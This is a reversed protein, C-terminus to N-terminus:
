RINMDMLLGAAIRGSDGLHQSITTLDMWESSEINDFGM